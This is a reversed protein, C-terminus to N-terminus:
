QPIEENADRGVGMAQGAQETAIKGLGFNRGNGMERCIRGIWPHPEFRRRRGATSM